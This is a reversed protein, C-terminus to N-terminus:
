PMNRPELASLLERWILLEPQGPKRQGFFSVIQRGQKDYLELSTITGDVTPKRVVFTDHIGDELLHLNFRKDLINFWGNTRQIRQVPGTHIQICGANGVFVMIPIDEASAVHLIQEHADNGVPRARGSGALRLAQVRSLGFQRLLDHFDHVDKLADWAAHFNEIKIATELESKDPLPTCEMRQLAVNPEDCRYHQVLREFAVVNSEETLHIKHVAEGSADFFQLSRRVGRPDLNIVAYAHVWHKMFLRLDIDEALAIGVDGHFNLNRYLGKKEHVCHANRTLAMVPGLTAAEKLLHRMDGNLRTSPGTECECAVLAMESVGLKHAADRIRLGPAAIQLDQWRQLLENEPLMATDPFPSQQITTMLM